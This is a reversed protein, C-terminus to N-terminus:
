TQVDGGDVNLVTLIASVLDQDTCVDASHQRRCRNGSRGNDLSSIAFRLLDWFCVGMGRAAPGVEPLVNTPMLLTLDICRCRTSKHDEYRQQPINARTKEHPRIHDCRCLLEVHCETSKRQASNDCARKPPPRFWPAVAPCLEM